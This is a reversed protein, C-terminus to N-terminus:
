RTWWHRAALRSLQSRSVGIDDLMRDDFRALEDMARHARWAGFLGACSNALRELMPLRNAAPRRRQAAGAPKRPFEVIVGKSALAKSSRLGTWSEPERVLRWDVELVVPEAAKLSKKTIMNM